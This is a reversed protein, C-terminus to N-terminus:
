GKRLKDILAELKVPNMAGLHASGISGDKAVLLTPISKVEFQQALTTEIDTNVRAFLIDGHREASAAFIPAFVKCPACWQAWFDLLMLSHREIEIDFNENTLELLPM